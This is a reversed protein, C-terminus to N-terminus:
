RRRRRAALGALALLSLTATAPEPIVKYAAMAFGNKLNTSTFAVTTADDAFTGTIKVLTTYHAGSTFAATSSFGDGTATAYQMTYGEALGTLTLNDITDKQSGVLLYGTFVEGAKCNDGFTLTLTAKANGGGGYALPAADLNALTLNTGLTTNMEALAASNTWYASPSAPDVYSTYTTYVNAETTTIKVGVKEGDTTFSPNFINHTNFSDTGFDVGYKYDGATGDGTSFTIIETTTTAGCAVGALAM